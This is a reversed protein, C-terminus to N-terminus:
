RVEEALIPELREKLMKRAKSARVRASQVSCGLIGAIEEFPREEIERLVILARYHAPLGAIVKRVTVAREARILCATGAPQRSDSLTAEVAPDLSEVQRRRKRGLCLNVTIRHLWTAFAAEARFRRMNRWAQVFTEQQVDAADEANGLMRHALRFVREQHLGILADFAHADGSQARAVLEGDSIAM